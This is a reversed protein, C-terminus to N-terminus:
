RFLMQLGQPDRLDLRFHRKDEHLGATHFVSVVDFGHRVFTRVVHAGIFGSAGTVLVPGM